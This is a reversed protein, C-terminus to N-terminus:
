ASPLTVIGTSDAAQGELYAPMRVEGGMREQLRKTDDSERAIVLRVGRARAARAMAIFSAKKSGIAIIDGAPMAAPDDSAAVALTGRVEGSPAVLMALGPMAEGGVSLVPAEGLRPQIITATQLYSGMGPARVLGFEQFRSAIWAAAKAEDPTASGRGQLADSALYDEDAKVWEPRVVWPGPAAPQAYGAALPLALLLGLLAGRRRWTSDTMWFGRQGAYRDSM